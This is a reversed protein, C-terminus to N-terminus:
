NMEKKGPPLESIREMAEEVTVLRVIWVATDEDWSITIGCGAVGELQEQSFVVPKGRCLYKMIVALALPPLEGDGRVRIVSDEDHGNATM